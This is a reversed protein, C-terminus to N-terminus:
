YDNWPDLTFLEDSPRRACDKKNTIKKRAVSVFWALLCFALLLCVGLIELGRRRRRAPAGQQLLQSADRALFVRRRASAANTALMRRRRPLELAFEVRLVVWLTSNPWRWSINALPNDLCFFTCAVSAQTDNVWGGASGLLVAPDGANEEWIQLWFQTPTLLYASDSSALWCTRGFLNNAGLALTQPLQAPACGSVNGVTLSLSLNAEHLWVLSCWNQPQFAFEVNAAGSGTSNQKDYGLLYSLTSAGGACALLRAHSSWRQTCSVVDPQCLGVTALDGRGWFLGDGPAPDVPWPWLSTHFGTLFEITSWIENNSIDVGLLYNLGRSTAQWVTGFFCGAPESSQIAVTSNTCNDPHVLVANLTGWPQPVSVLLRLSVFPAAVRVSTSELWPSPWAANPLTEDAPGPVPGCQSSNYGDVPATCVAPIASTSVSPAPSVSRAPSVSPAPSVSRAPSVSPAPSVSRAPSVSPATSVSPAPSVSRAPSVSPAPSMSRAPSVSPTKSVSPATSVSPTKSGSPTGSVPPTKSVSPTTLVSPTGSVPPTKSVSPTTSVSRTPSVSPTKSVSSTTSVSRTPSVSPTKSVSPATSVSRAPSVSPTKSVSPATSVSRAPSVSPAPSVSRTKSVPPTAPPSASWTAQLPAHSPFAPRYLKSSQYRSRAACGLFYLEEVVM